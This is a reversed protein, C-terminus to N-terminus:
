GIYSGDQQFNTTPFNRGFIRHESLNVKIWRASIQVLAEGPNSLVQFNKKANELSSARSDLWHFEFRTLELSM